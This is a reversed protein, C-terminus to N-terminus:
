LTQNENNEEDAEPSDLNIVTVLETPTDNVHFQVHFIPLDEEFRAFAAPYTLAQTVPDDGPEETELFVDWTHDQNDRYESFNISYGGTPQEGMAAVLYLAGDMQLAYYGEEELDVHVMVLEPVEEESIINEQPIPTTGPDIRDNNNNNNNNQEGNPACGAALLIMFLGILTLKISKHM